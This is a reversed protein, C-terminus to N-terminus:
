TSQTHSHTNRNTDVKKESTDADTEQLINVAVSARRRRKDTSVAETSTFILRCEFWLVKNQKVSSIPARKQIKLTTTQTKNRVKMVSKDVKLAGKLTEDGIMMHALMLTDTEQKATIKRIDYKQATNWNWRRERWDQNSGRTSSSLMFSSLIWHKSHCGWWWRMTIMTIMTMMMIMM